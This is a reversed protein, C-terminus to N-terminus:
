NLTDPDYAKFTNLIDGHADIIVAGDPIDACYLGNTVFAMSLYEAETIISGDADMLGYRLKGDEESILGYAYIGSDLHHVAHYAESIAKGDNGCLYASRDDKSGSFVIFRGESSPTISYCDGATFLLAGTHDYVAGSDGSYKIIYEGLVSASAGDLPMMCTQTIDHDYIRLTDGRIAGILQDSRLILTNGDTLLFNGVKNIVGYGNVTAIVALGDIFDGAYLFSPEIAWTGQTDIYGYLSSRDDYLPMLGESYESFGNLVTIGTNLTIGDSWLISMPDGIDDYIDGTTVLLRGNGLYVIDSFIYNNYVGSGTLYRYDRGEGVICGNGAERISSYKFDTLASGQSNLVAYLMTGNISKGAAYGVAKDADNRLVYLSDYDGAPILISGNEDVAVAGGTYNVAYADALCSSIPFCMFLLVILALLRKM